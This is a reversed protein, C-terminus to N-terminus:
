FHNTFKDLGMSQFEQTILDSSRKNEQIDSHLHSIFENRVIGLFNSDKLANISQLLEAQVSEDIQSVLVTADCLMSAQIAGTMNPVPSLALLVLDYHSTFMLILDEMRRSGLLDIPNSLEPILGSPLIDINLGFLTRQVPMPLLSENMLANVLGQDNELKLHRNLTTDNFDADIILTRLNARAVSMALGLVFMSKGEDTASSTVALSKLSNNKSHLLINRYTLDLSDRFQSIDLIQVLASNIFETNSKIDLLRHTETLNVAPLFGLVPMSIPIKSKESLTGNKTFGELIFVAGGALFLGVVLGLLIDQKYNPGVQRGLQPFEVVEWKFGGRSLRSSIEQHQELLRKVVTRELELEPQLRDYEAILAPFRDLQRRLQQKTDLLKRERANLSALNAQIENLNSIQTLDVSNLQGKRLLGEGATNLNKASSGLIKEAENQLLNIQKQRQDILAQVMPNDDTAIARKKALEQETDKINDLQKQYRSSQSLRTTILGSEPSSSLQTQLTNKRAEVEKRQTQTSRLDQEVQNLANTLFTVQQNPDTSIGYKKHFLEIKDQIRAINIRSNQLQTDIFRLGSTLRLSQQNKNYNQYILQLSQLVKQTKVPSNSTFTAKLIKTAVKEEIVKNLTLSNRVEDASITYESELDKVAKEIFQNSRMLNIQTAYDEPKSSPSDSGQLPDQGGPYNPEILLQMSSEYAPPKRLSLFLSIGFVSLLISFFLIKHRFLISLIQGYGFEVEPIPNLKNEM